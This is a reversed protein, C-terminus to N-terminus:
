MTKFYTLLYSVFTYYKTAESTTIRIKSNMYPIIIQTKQVYLDEYVIHEWGPLVFLVSYQLSIIQELFQNKTEKVNEM